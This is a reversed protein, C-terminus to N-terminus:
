AHGAGGQGDRRRRTRFALGCVILAATLAYLAPVVPLSHKEMVLFVHEKYFYGALENERDGDVDAARLNILGSFVRWKQKLGEPTFEYGTMYRTRNQRVNSKSLAIIQPKNGAGLPAFGEFRFSDDRSAWLVQWQGNKDLKLIKAMDTNLLLEDTGDFDVDALIVESTGIEPVEAPTIQSIIGTQGGPSVQIVQLSEGLVVLQAAPGPMLRGAGLIATAETPLSFSSGAYNGTLLFTGTSGSEGTQERIVANLKLPKEIELSSVAAGSEGITSQLRNWGQQRQRISELDLGLIFFPAEGFRMTRRVLEDRDLLPTLLQEPGTASVKWDIAYFPFNIYDQMLSSVLRDLSYEDRDLLTFERGDWNYVVYRNDEPPLFAEKEGEDFIKKQEKRVTEPNGQTIIEDKGDNNVDAALLPFYDVTGQQRYLVPSQWKVRFETWLPVEALPVTSSIIVAVLFVTTFRRLKVKGLLLSVTFLVIFVALSGAVRGYWAWDAINDLARVSLLFALGLVSYPKRDAPPLSYVLLGTLAVALLIGYVSWDLIAPIFLLEYLVFVYLALLTYRLIGAPCKLLKNM